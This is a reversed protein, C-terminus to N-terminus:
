QGAPQRARQPPDRDPSLTRTDGPGAPSAPGRGAPAPVRGRDPVPASRAGDRPCSSSPLPPSSMAKRTSSRFFIRLSTAKRRRTSGKLGQRDLEALYRELHGRTVDTVRTVGLDEQIYALAQRLDAGYGTRTRAALNRGPLYQATFRALAQDLTLRLPDVPEDRTGSLTVPMDATAMIGVYWM